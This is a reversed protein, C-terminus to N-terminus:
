VGRKRCTRCARWPRGDPRRYTNEETYEHGKPCHTARAHMAPITNGRMTNTRSTVPELHAPNCCAPVKCLHDLVLGAPIDGVYVTYALRHTYVQHGDVLLRTHGNSGAGRDSVWCATKYGRDEITVRSQIREILATRNM